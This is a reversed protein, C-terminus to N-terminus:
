QMMEQCGSAHHNGMIFWQGKITKDNKETMLMPVEMAKKKESTTHDNVNVPTFCM